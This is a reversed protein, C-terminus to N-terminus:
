VQAVPFLSKTCRASERENEYKGGAKEALEPTKKGEWERRSLEQSESLFCDAQASGISPSFRPSPRTKRGQTPTVSRRQGSAEGPAEPISRLSARSGVGLQGLFQEDLLPFIQHGLACADELAAASEAASVRPQVPVDVGREAVGRVFEHFAQVKAEYRGLIVNFVEMEVKKVINEFNQEIDTQFDAFEARTKKLAAATAKVHQRLEERADKTRKLEAERRKQVQAILLDFHKNIHKVHTLDSSLHKEAKALLEAHILEARRRELKLLELCDRLRLGREDEENESLEECELGQRNFILACKGCLFRKLGADEIRFLARKHGHNMCFPATSARHSPLPSRKLASSSRELLQPVSSDRQSSETTQRM